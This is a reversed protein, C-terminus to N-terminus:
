KAAYFLNQGDFFAIARKAVPEAPMGGETPQVRLLL